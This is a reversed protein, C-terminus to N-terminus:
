AAATSPVLPRWGVRGPKVGASNTAEVKPATSGGASLEAQQLHTQPFILPKSFTFAESKWDWCCELLSRGAKRELRGDPRSLKRGAEDGVRPSGFTVCEVPRARAFDAACLTALAGGLSHGAPDSAFRPSM